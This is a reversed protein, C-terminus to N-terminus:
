EGQQRQQREALAVCEANGAPGKKGICERVKRQEKGGGNGHAVGELGTDAGPQQLAHGSELARHVTAPVHKRQDATRGGQARHDTGGDADGCEGPAALKRLV